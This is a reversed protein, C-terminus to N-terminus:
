GAAMDTLYNSVGNEGHILTEATELDNGTNSRKDQFDIVLVLWNENSQVNLTYSEDSDDGNTSNEIVDDEFDPNLYVIWYTIFLKMANPLAIWVRM